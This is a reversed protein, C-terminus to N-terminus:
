NPLIVKVPHVVVGEIGNSFANPFVKRIINFSGNCDANIRQGSKSKYMGRKIRKGNFTHSVGKEYTPITDLDLFSALSTYSEETVIVKIGVLEAKYKLLHIFRDHPLQIFNQNNRKGINLEQKWGDNKGIILTGIDNSILQTIVVRSAKHLYDDVKFNRKTSLRQIRKSTSSGLISQLEAKRKNYYQNISKLPKGNIIRPTYGTKNSSITALNNVGLDLGAVKNKDLGIDRIPSDYIVEIVYHNLKPIIRVQAVREHKIATKIEISTQSPNIIQRKTWARKSIAQITYVLINRGKIKEKYKPLNPRGLFKSPDKQYNKSAEFFSKWNKDLLMLIQQSVKAPLRKYDVQNQLSKQVANYNQYKGTNIFEQRVIYNAVNYLNKSLLALKDIEKYHKHTKNIVHREVLQVVGGKFM